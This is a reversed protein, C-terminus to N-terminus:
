FAYAFEMSIPCITGIELELKRFEMENKNRDSYSM